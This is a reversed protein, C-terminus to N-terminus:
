AVETSQKLANCTLHCSCCVLKKEERQDIRDLPAALHHWRLPKAAVDGSEGSSAAVYHRRLPCRCRSSFVGAAPSWSAASCGHPISRRLMNHKIYHTDKVNDEADIEKEQCIYRTRAFVM